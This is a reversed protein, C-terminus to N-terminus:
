MANHIEISADFGNANAAWPALAAVLAAGNQHGALAPPANYANFFPFNAPLAALAARNAVANTVIHGLNNHDIKPLRVARWCVAIHSPAYSYLNTPNMPDAFSDVSRVVRYHIGVWANKYPAAMDFQYAANLFSRMSNEVGTHWANAQTTLPTLNQWNNGPGGWEGNILHGRRWTLFHDQTFVHGPRPPPTTWATDWGEGGVNPRNGLLIGGPAAIDPGLICEAWTAGFSFGHVLHLPGHNYNRMSFALTDPANLGAQNRWKVM